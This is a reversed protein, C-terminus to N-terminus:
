PSIERLRSTALRASLKEGIESEDRDMTLRRKSRKWASHFLSVGIGRSDIERAFRARVSEGRSSKGLESFLGFRRSRFGDGVIAYFAADRVFPWSECLLSDSSRISRIGVTRISNRAARPECITSFDRTAPIEMPM